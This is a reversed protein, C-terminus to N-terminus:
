GHRLEVPLEELLRLWLEAATPYSPVAHRLVHVPVRGVIAVTAAHVLEAAEPGCFTAGVLTGTRRDVVLQAEGAVHDRLLAAGAAGGFPVRATVVDALTAQASEETEGVTAVQPDTFVVQPVPVVEPVPAPDRGAAEAALRDGVVRARYKGWHTLPADGSADGVALLWDPLRDEVIDATTLGVAELGADGLRPHRGTAVLVEDASLEGDSTELTVPGGHIRGLGTDAPDDRHCDHVDTHLRVDVGSEVLSQRVAEAAFPECSPLLRDGRVVMIVESGLGNLWTAAECAVVGGGIIVTRGPVDVVGTADRSGWPRVDAYVDPVTPESGTALIVARRAQLVREGEATAVAVTRDAVLRGHGRVVDIGVSTAWELQGTDDYNSVWTDRHALLAAPDVAPAPLPALDAATAAVELPRLLAKSPMCAYYSCEGGILEGEVLVATLGSDAMAYQAVNEGVPGAGIVVIDYTQQTM